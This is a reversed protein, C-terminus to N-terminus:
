EVEETWEHPGAAEVPLDLEDDYFGSDPDDWEEPKFVFVSGGIEVDDGPQAGAEALAAEVGARSLRGQLYSVADDNSLDLQHIWRELRDGHVRWGYEGGGLGVKEVHFDRQDSQQRPRLVPRATPEPHGPDARESRAQKVLDALRWKLTDVGAGTVASGALVEWGDAELEPRILEAMDPDADAKNLWVLAPRDILEPMYTRLEALTVQLDEAPNRQEYRRHSGAEAAYGSACDLVHVLAGAREVHRLFEHGLGKGDAAGEILGPVDAVVFDTDGATVVGLNPTLTTFPYDAIKPRAASLRAILSSKGGNPFGVLAVDAMLKLELTIWVEEGKAGYEHFAPARRERTRFAANGRGGRGGAAVIVEQGDRVLDALVEETDAETVVTGVPVLVIEDEGKAGHRLDGSGNTGSEATRHPRYHLDILTALQADARVIVDGGDGGGGGEPPGKPEYPQRRFSTVGDGGNGGRANIKVLDTFM